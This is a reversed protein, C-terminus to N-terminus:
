WPATPSTTVLCVDRVKLGVLDCGCLKSDFGQNFLALERAKHALQLRM